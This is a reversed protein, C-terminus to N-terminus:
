TIKFGLGEFYTKTEPVYVIHFLRKNQQDKFEIYPIGGGSRLKVKKIDYLYVLKERKRFFPYDVVRVTNYDIEIYAKYVNYFARSIECALVAIFTLVIFFPVISHSHISLAITAFSLFSVFVSSYVILFIKLAKKIKGRPTKTYIYFIMEAGGKKAENYCLYTFIEVTKPITSVIFARSNKRFAHYLVDM